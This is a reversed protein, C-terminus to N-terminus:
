DDISINQVFGIIAAPCGFICHNVSVCVYRVVISTNSSDAIM